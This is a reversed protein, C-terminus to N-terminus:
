NKVEVATRDRLLATMTVVKACKPFQLGPPNIQKGVNGSSMLAQSILGSSSHEIESHWIRGVTVEDTPKM